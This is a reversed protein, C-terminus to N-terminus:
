ESTSDKKPYHAELYDLLRKNIKIMTEMQEQYLMLINELNSIKEKLKSKEMNERRINVIMLEMHCEGVM